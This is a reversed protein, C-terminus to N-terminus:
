IKERDNMYFRRRNQKFREINDLRYRQERSMNKKRNFHSKAFKISRHFMTQKWRTQKATDPTFRNSPKADKAIEEGHKNRPINKRFWNM